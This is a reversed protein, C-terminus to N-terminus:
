GTLVYLYEHDAQKIKNTLLISFILLYRFRTFDPTEHIDTGQGRIIAMEEIFSFYTSTFATAERRIFNSPISLAKEEFMSGRIAERFPYPVNRCFTNVESLKRVIAFTDTRILQWCSKGLHTLILKIRITNTINVLYSQM